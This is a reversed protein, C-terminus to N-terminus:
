LSSWEPVVAEPPGGVVDLTWAVFVVPGISKLAESEVTCDSRSVATSFASPRTARPVPVGATASLPEFM